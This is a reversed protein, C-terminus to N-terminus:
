IELEELGTIEDSASTAEDEGMMRVRAIAGYEPSLEFGIGKVKCRTAAPFITGSGAFTDLVTNGPLVSRSLLDVYLDVPKQAGHQLNRVSPVSIVDPKVCRVTRNGKSAFMISEYVRRPAHEPRPLMGNGKAWILPIPWVAWGALEFHTKLDDFRRPDCFVYAHAEAKCVRYSEEALTEIIAEFYEQSDEYAHGQGSQDGFSNADIGYPPDTLLVDVSADPLAKISERFDGIVLSHPCESAAADFTAALAQVRKAEQKKRVVKIAEAETKAKAVDPDDLHEALRIRNAVATVQDGVAPPADPSRRHLIENAIATLTPAPLNAEANQASRLELLQAEAMAREQWTLNERRINEDLEIEFVEIDSRAGLDLCPITGPPCLMDGFRIHKGLELLSSCARFRREGSALKFVGDVLRVSPAHILGHTDISTELEDLPGETITTRQRNEVVIQAPTLFLM